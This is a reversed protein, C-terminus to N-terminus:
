SESNSARNYGHGLKSKQWLIQSALGEELTCVPRWNLEAKAKHCNSATRMPNGNGLPEYSVQIRSNVLVELESVVQNMSVPTGGGINYTAGPLCNTNLACLNANVIDGVFTFDRVQSGDGHMTFSNGTLGAYILKHFAMDPRQGPGFVTFYRLSITEMGFQTGFLRVLNEGALKTVGYPSIPLPCLDENSEIGNNVGYVSSSSAYIFKSVGALRAADLLRHTADINNRTYENFDIGWSSQVSAKGAQHFVAEIGYFIENFDVTLLDAEKLSFQNTEILDECNARKLSLSYNQSFNDLGIVSHGHALLARCLNNGIFGAAGTVLIKM